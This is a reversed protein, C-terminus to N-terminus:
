RTQRRTITWRRAIDVTTDHAVRQTIDATLNHGDQIYCRREGHTHTHTPPHQWLLWLERHTPRQQLLEMRELEVDSVGHIVLHVFGQLPTQARAHALMQHLERWVSLELQNFGTAVLYSAQPARRVLTRGRKHFDLGSHTDRRQGM